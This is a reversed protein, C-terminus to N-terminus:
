KLVGLRDLIVLIRTADESLNINGKGDGQLADKAILRDITPKGWDPIDNVTKFMVKETEELRRILEAWPFNKGPCATPMVDKHGQVAIGLHRTRIDRILWVLSDLQAQTPKGTEFNGILCVGIGNSNAEQKASYYAHAGVTDEPRGTWIQGDAYIVYHYGIGSWGNALHWRHVDQITTTPGSASHHLVIAETKRRDTLPRIFGMPNIKIDM